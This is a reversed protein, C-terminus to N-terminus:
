VSIFPARWLEPLKDIHIIRTKRNLNKHKVRYPDFLADGLVDSPVCGHVKRSIMKYLKFDPYREVTNSKYLISKGADDQCLRFVLRKIPCKVSKIDDDNDILIDFLSCGLRCLDFSYNPAITPKKPDYYEGCNYQNSAVAGREYCDGMVNAGRYTYIARDFDIIKYVRGFTPVKYYVGNYAYYLYPRETTTYMVNNCHLDNHTFQYVHQYITLTLVIQLLMAVVEADPLGDDLLSEVTDVCNEMAVMCSPVNFLEIDFCESSGGSLGSGSSGSGSSGSGSSGSGSSGSGSSSSPISEDSRTHSTRSSCSSSRSSTRSKVYADITLAEDVDKDEFTVEAISGASEADQDFDDVNTDVDGLPPGSAGDSINLSPRNGRSGNNPLPITSRRLAYRSCKPDFMADDLIYDADEIMNITLSSHTGMFIGHCDLANVVGHENLLKSSLYTFYCDVYASVNRAADTEPQALSPAETPSGIYKLPDFPLSCKIFVRAARETGDQRVIADYRRRSRAADTEGRLEVLPASVLPEEDGFLSYVPCYRQAHVLSLAEQAGKPIEHALSLAEQAGKPIEHAHSLAEQAGKPIEHSQVNKTM